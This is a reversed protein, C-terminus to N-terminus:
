RDLSYPSSISTAGKATGSDASAPTNLRTDAAQQRMGIDESSVPTPVEDTMHLDWLLKVIGNPTFANAIHAMLDQDPIRSSQSLEDQPAAGLDASLIEAIKM